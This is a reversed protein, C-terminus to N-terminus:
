LFLLVSAILLGLGVIKRFNEQPIKDVLKKAIIAGVFSIPISLLLLTYSLQNLEINGQYYRVLRTTDIFFAIVGSTFIYVSKDLNFASLFVGRVAGGVGFIGAFFGSLTGGLLANKTGKSVEWKPKLLIFLTYSFLFVALLKELIKSDLSFPISAGLYSAVIGPFGFLFILKWNIGKKFLFIKWLDGFWHIVGVFLLVEPLPFKIALTPVMITSTGFGTLTGFSASILTLLLVLIYNM